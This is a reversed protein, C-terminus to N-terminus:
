IEGGYGKYWIILIGVACLFLIVVLTELVEEIPNKM